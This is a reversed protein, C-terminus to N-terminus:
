PTRARDKRRQSVPRVALGAAKLMAALYSSQVDRQGRLYEYVASESLTPCYERAKRYLQGRNMSLQDLRALIAERFLDPAKREPRGDPGVAVPRLPGRSEPADGEESTDVPRAKLARLRALDEANPRPIEAATKRVVKKGRSGAPM